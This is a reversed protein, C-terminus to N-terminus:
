SAAERLETIVIFVTLDMTPATIAQFTLSDAAQETAEVGSSEYLARSASAPVPQILQATEDALIGPVAVTQTNGSWNASLLSIQRYVIQTQWDTGGGGSQAEWSIAGDRFVPVDGDTASAPDPYAGIRDFLADRQAVTYKGQVPTYEAPFNM